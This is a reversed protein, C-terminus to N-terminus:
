HTKWLTKYLIYQSYISLMYTYHLVATAGSSLCQLYQLRLGDIYVPIVGDEYQVPGSIVYSDGFNISQHLM